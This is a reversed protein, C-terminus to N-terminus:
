EKCPIGWSEGGVDWSIWECITRNYVMRSGRVMELSRGPQLCVVPIYSLQRSVPIPNGIM